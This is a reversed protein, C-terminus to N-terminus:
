RVAELTEMSTVSNGRIVVTGIPTKVAPTSEETAEDVVLNLFIDFGRLVGSVKRGGQLNFFLRKDMFKKLEPQSAKSM